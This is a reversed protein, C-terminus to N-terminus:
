NLLISQKRTIELRNWSGVWWMHLNLWKFDRKLAWPLGKIDTLSGAHNSSVGVYVWGRYYEVSMANVGNVFFFSLCSWLSLPLTVIIISDMYNFQGRHSERDTIFRYYFLQWWACHISCKTVCMNLQLYNIITQVTKSLCFMCGINRTLAKKRM